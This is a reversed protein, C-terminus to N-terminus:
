VNNVITKSIEINPINTIQPPMKCAKIIIYMNYVQTKIEKLNKFHKTIYKSTEFLKSM